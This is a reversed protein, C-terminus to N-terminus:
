PSVDLTAPLIYCFAAGAANLREACFEASHSDHITHWYDDNGGKMAHNYVKVGEPVDGATWARATQVTTREVWPQGPVCWRVVDHSPVDTIYESLAEAAQMFFKGSTYEVCVHVEARVGEGRPTRLATTTEVPRRVVVLPPAAGANWHEAFWQRAFERTGNAKTGLMDDAFREAMELADVVVSSDASASNTTAGARATLRAAARNYTDRANDSMTQWPLGYAGESMMADHLQEGTVVRPAAEPVSPWHAAFWKLLWEQFLFPPESNNIWETRDEWLRVAAEAATMTSDSM